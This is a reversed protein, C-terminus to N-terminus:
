EGKPLLGEELPAGDIALTFTAKVVEDKSGETTATSVFARYTEYFGTTM